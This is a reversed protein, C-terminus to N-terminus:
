WMKSTDDHLNVDKRYGVALKMNESHWTGFKAKKIYSVTSKKFYTQGNM